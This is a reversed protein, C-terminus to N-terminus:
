KTKSGKSSWLIRSIVKEQTHTSPSSSHFLCIGLRLIFEAPWLCLRPFRQEGKEKASGETSGDGSVM